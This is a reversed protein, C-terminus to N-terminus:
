IEITLWIQHIMNSTNTQSLKEKHKHVYSSLQTQFINLNPWCFGCRNCYFYFYMIVIFVILLSLIFSFVVASYFCFHYWYCFFYLYCCFCYCCCCCCCCGIHLDKVGDELHQEAWVKAKEYGPHYECYQLTAPM